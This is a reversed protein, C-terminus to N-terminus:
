APNKTDVTPKPDRKHNFLNTLYSQSAYNVRLELGLQPGRPAELITYLLKWKIKWEDWIFGLIGYYNGNSKGNEGM